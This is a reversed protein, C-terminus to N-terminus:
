RAPRQPRAMLIVGPVALVVLASIAAAFYMWDQDAAVTLVLGALGSVLGFTRQVSERTFLSSALMAGGYVAFSVGPIANPAAYDGTLVMKLILGTAVVGLILGAGSWVAQDVRTSVASAEPSQAVRSSLVANVGFGLIVFALWVGWLTWPPATSAPAMVFGHGALALALLVGWSALFPGSKSPATRGEEALARILELDSLATNQTM